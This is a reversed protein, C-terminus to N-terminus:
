VEWAADNSWARRTFINKMLQFLSVFACCDRRFTCSKSVHFSNSCHPDRTEHCIKRVKEQAGWLLIPKGEDTLLMIKGPKPCLIPDSTVDLYSWKSLCLEGDGRHHRKRFRLQAFMRLGSLREAGLERHSDKWLWDVFSLGLSNKDFRQFIEEVAQCFSLILM